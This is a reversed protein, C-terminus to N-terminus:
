YIVCDFNLNKPWFFPQGLLLDICLSKQQLNSGERKSQWNEDTKLILGNM